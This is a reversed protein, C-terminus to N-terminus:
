TISLFGRGATRTMLMEFSCEAATSNNESEALYWQWQLYKCYFSIWLTILSLSVTFLGGYAVHWKKVKANVFYQM